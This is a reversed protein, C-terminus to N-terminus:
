GGMTRTARLLMAALQARTVSGQPDLRGGDTGSIIGYEACWRMADLAWSSVSDADPFGDLADAPSPAADNSYEMFRYLMVALQERTLQASPEFTEAATGDAIKNLRAWYVPVAYWSGADVDAYPYGWDSAPMDPEGAVRWITTVAMARTVPVDPAFSVDSVGEMWGKVYVSFVDDYFWDGSGVDSFSLKQDPKATVTVTEAASVDQAATTTYYGRGSFTFRYAGPALYYDGYDDPEYARGATDTVRVALGEPESQARVLTLSEGEGSVSRIKGRNVLAGENSIDAAITVGERVDLTVGSKVTGGTTCDLMAYVTDGSVAARLAADLTPYFKDGIRAVCPWVPRASGEPTFDGNFGPAVGGRYAYSYYYTDHEADYKRYEYLGAGTFTFDRVANGNEVSVSMACFTDAFGCNIVSLKCGSCDPAIATGYLWGSFDCDHVSLVCKSGSKLAVAADRGDVAAFDIGQVGATSGSAADGLEFALAGTFKVEGEGRLTVPTKVTLIGGEPAYEGPELTIVDGASAADLAERLEDMNAARLGEGDALASPLLACMLALALLVSLLKKM